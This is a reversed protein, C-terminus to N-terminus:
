QNARKCSTKGKRVCAITSIPILPFSILKIHSTKNACVISSKLRVPRSKIRDFISKCIEVRILIERM